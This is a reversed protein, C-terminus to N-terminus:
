GVGGDQRFKIATVNALGYLGLVSAVSWVWVMALDEAAQAWFEAPLKGTLMAGFILLQLLLHQATAWKFVRQALIWKRSEPKDDATGMTNGVLGPSRVVPSPQLGVAM